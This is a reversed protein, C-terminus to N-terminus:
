PKAALEYFIGDELQADDNAIALDLFEVAMPVSYTIGIISDRQEAVV